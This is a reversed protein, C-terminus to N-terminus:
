LFLDVPLCFRLHPCYYFPDWFSIHNTLASTVAPEANPGMPLIKHACSYVKPKWFFASFKKVLEAVIMM